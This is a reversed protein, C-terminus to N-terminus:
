VWWDDINRGILKFFEKIDKRRDEVAKETLNYWEIYDDEESSEILWEPKGKEEFLKDADEGYNSTLIKEGLERCKNISSIIKNTSVDNTGATGRLAEGNEVFYDFMLNLKHTILRILFDGEYDHDTMVIDVWRDQWSPNENYNFGYKDKIVDGM